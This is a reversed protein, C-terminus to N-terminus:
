DVTTKTGDKAVLPQILIEVRRNQDRGEATDNPAVPQFEGYGKASFFRPDIAENETMLKLLNVARMVSLDWNSSFEANNMPVNDTHGTVVIPRPPDFVLLESLEEALPLYEGIIEAKGPNFLISDMITVRLGDETMEANFTNELEHLAIYEEVGEKAEELSQQDKLYERQAQTLQSDTIDSNRDIPSSHDMIGQGGDFIENFVSSLKELKGADVTSSAFLVIFLALLLTMLDAYPLLWSEDVHGSDKKKGKRKKALQIEERQKRDM